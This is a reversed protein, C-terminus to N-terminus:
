VVEEIPIKNDVWRWADMVAPQLVGREGTLRQIRIRRLNLLRGLVVRPDFDFPSYGIVVNRHGVVADRQTPTLPTVILTPLPARTHAAGAAALNVMDQVDGPPAAIIALDGGERATLISTPAIPVRPGNLELLRLEQDPHGGRPAPELEFGVVSHRGHVRLVTALPLGRANTMGWVAIKM